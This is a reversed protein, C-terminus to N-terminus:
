EERERDEKENQLNNTEIKAIENTIIISQAFSSGGSDSSTGAKKKKKKLFYEPIIQMIKKYSNAFEIKRDNNKDSDIVERPSEVLDPSLFNMKVKGKAM